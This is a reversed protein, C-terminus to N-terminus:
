VYLRGAYYKFLMDTIRRAAISPALGPHMCETIEMDEDVKISVHFKRDPVQYWKGTKSLTPPNCKIVVPTIDVDAKIAIHAAGRQFKGLRNGSRTGEPFIIITEGNKLAAACDNIMKESDRNSIYGVSRPPGFSFPNTILAHKVICNADRVLAILFVIDLLTPHNAVILPGPRNLYAENEVEYTLIGLFRMFQIFLRFCLHVTKRARRTRVLGSGPLLNMLPLVIVALLIGGAKFLAFSFGTAIIRWYYLKRTIKDSDACSGDM